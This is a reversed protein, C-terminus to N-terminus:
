GRRASSHQGPVMPTTRLWIGFWGRVKTPFMRLLRSFLIVSNSVSPAVTDVVCELVVPQRAHGHGFSRDLCHVCGLLEHLSQAADTGDLSENYSSFGLASPGSPHHSAHVARTHNSDNM